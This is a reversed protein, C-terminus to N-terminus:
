SRHDWRGPVSTGLALLADEYSRGASGGATVVTVPLGLSAIRHPLDRRIWRSMRRPLTSVIV